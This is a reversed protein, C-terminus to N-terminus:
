NEGEPKNPVLYVFLTTLAGSLWVNQADTLDFGYKAVAASIATVAAAVITKRRAALFILLANM